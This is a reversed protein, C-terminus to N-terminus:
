PLRSLRRSSSRSVLGDVTMLAPANVFSWSSSGPSVAAGPVAVPLVPVGLECAAPVGEADGDVRDVGVPVRDGRGVRDRMVDEVALRVQGRVGREDGARLGERDREPRGARAGDSRAVRGVARLARVRARGDGDGRRRGDRGEAAGGVGDVDAGSVGVSDAVKELGSLVIVPLTVKWSQEALSQEVTRWVRSELEVVRATPAEPEAAYEPPVARTSPLM